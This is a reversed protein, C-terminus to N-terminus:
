KLLLMKRTIDGSASKLRYFYVGQAVESRNDDRSDFIVSHPGADLQSDVLTRVKMGLINYVSLNVHDRHSLAFSISTQPNFPNPYNQDLSFAYPMPQEAVSTPTHVVALERNSFPSWQNQADVARVQYYYDGPTRGSVLFSTDPIDSGLVNVQAFTEVPYFQDAYFGENQVAGDTIYRMGLLVSQGAYDNLPFTGLVWTNSNGTIGNGRNNGNPNNNTTINGQLNSFSSGGDTSVQVYAYDYNSEISYWVWVKLTDHAGVSVSNVLVASGDYNDGTGSFLSYTGSHKRSTRLYFGDLNWNSTGNEFGDEIRELGSFEKLEFAVAPNLTDSFSWSVTFSDGYVDGIPHLVPAQPPAQVYPNGAIVSLYIMSPLIDNWLQPIRSQDPWFGDWDTGLEIVFGFIKPKETQEGYQWDGADGNTNYLLQWPTGFLFGNEATASDSIASFLNNDETFGNYYGWPYLMYNGYSHLNLVVSFNRSNIFQRLVETEPESFPGTGRYVESFPDPSSGNDDYGWMYGWNRNLDIGYSGNGNNRRNKRWMGGGNPNTQRNYEYGDPNIIPVFFFERNDVLETVLPDTGYNSCLYSMFRLASEGGMPERAHILANIFFEPENEDQGPNDSIKM